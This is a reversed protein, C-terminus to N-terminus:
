WPTIPDAVPLFYFETACEVLHKAMVEYAEKGYFDDANIVAFPENIVNAAM